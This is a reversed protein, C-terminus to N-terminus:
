NYLYCCLGFVPLTLNTKSLNTDWFTTLYLRVSQVVKNRTFLPTTITSHILQNEILVFLEPLYPQPYPLPPPNTSTYMTSLNLLRSYGGMFYMMM